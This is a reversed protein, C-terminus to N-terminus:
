GAPEITRAFLLVSHVAKVLLSDDRMKLVHIKTEVKSVTMWPSSRSSCWKRVSNRGEPTVISDADM